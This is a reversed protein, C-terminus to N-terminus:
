VGVKDSAKPVAESWKLPEWLLKIKCVHGSLSWCKVEL